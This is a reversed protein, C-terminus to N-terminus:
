VFPVDLMPGRGPAPREPAAVFLLRMAERKLSDERKSAEDKLSDERKSAEDAQDLMKGLQAPEMRDLVSGSPEM